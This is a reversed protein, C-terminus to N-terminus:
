GDFDEANIDAEEVSEVNIGDYLAKLDEGPLVSLDVNYRKLIENNAILCLYNEHIKLVMSSQLVSSSNDHNNTSQSNNDNTELSVLLLVLIFVLFVILITIRRNLFDPM